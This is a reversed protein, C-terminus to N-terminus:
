SAFILTGPVLKLLSDFKIRFILCSALLQKKNLVQHMEIVKQRSIGLESETLFSVSLGEADALSLGTNAGCVVPAHATDKSRTERM